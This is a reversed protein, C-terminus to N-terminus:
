LLLKMKNNIISIYIKEYVNVECNYNSAIIYKNNDLLTFSRSNIDKCENDTQYVIQNKANNNNVCM